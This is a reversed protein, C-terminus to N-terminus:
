SLQYKAAPQQVSEDTDEDYYFTVGSDPERFEYIDKVHRVEQSKLRLDM